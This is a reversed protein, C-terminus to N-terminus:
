FTGILAVSGPGPVVRAGRLRLRPLAVGVAGGVVAGVVVDSTWHKDAAIRLWGTATALVLGGAWVAPAWRRGRRTAITGAATALSFVYSTHGSYFSLNNDDPHATSAKDADALQHVFPRERGVALKVAQNLNSAIVMSEVALLADVPWEGWRDDHRAAAGLLGITLLPGGGFGVFDSISSARGPNSWVLADRLSEDLGPPRCWRCTEPALSGKFAVESLFYALAGAGTIAADVRWGPLEVPAPAPAEDAHALSRSGVGAIVVLPLVWARVRGHHWPQGPGAAAVDRRCRSASGKAIGAIM